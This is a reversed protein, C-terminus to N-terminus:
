KMPTKQGRKRRSSANVALPPLSHKCPFQIVMHARDCERAGRLSLNRENGGKSQGAEAEGCRAKKRAM